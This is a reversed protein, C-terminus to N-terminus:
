ATRRRRRPLVLGAFVLGLGIALAPSDSSGAQCGTSVGTASNGGPWCVGAAGDPLCQFNTPCENATPNCSEVCYKHSGDSACNGSDCDSSQTCVAGLGGPANPGLVCIKNVCTYNDGQSSCDSPISCSAGVIVDIFASGPTNQSDYGRVEVHHSGTALTSPANYAYPPSNVSLVLTGDIYLQTKTISTNTTFTAHVPFGPSVTAGNAPDTIKVVPPMPTSAGFIAMISAYSNQTTPSSNGTLLEGCAHPGCEPPGSYPCQDQGTGGTPYEGCQVAMNAFQRRGSYSEYTMPDSALLEHDMGWTHAIEQGVTACIEDVNHTESSQAYYPENAFTFSLADVIYQGNGYYPAIGLTGQGENLESGLGAVMEEMHDATGPDVDTITIDFPSFIDRACAMIDSWEQASGNFPSLVFTGGGQPVGSEDPVATSDTNGGNNVITCGGAHAQCNNLYLIRSFQGNGSIPASFKAPVWGKRAGPPLAMAATADIPARVSDGITPTVQDARAITSVGAVGFTSAIALVTGTVVSAKM